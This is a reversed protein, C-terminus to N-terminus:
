LNAPSGFNSYGSTSPRNYDPTVYTETNNRQAASSAQKDKKFTSNFQDGIQGGFQNAKNAIFRRSEAGSSPALLIGAAVGAAVGILLSVISFGIGSAREYDYDEDGYAQNSQYADNNVFSKALTTLLKDTRKEEALSTTLLQLAQREGLMKAYTAVTGYNAIEYHEIKQAAGILGADRVDADGGASIMEQGEKILGQTAECTEGKPSQGLADFIQELRRIQEQTESEHREFARKLQPHQAAEAMQPLAKLIRSESDYIDRLQTVYLKKLTELKMTTQTKQNCIIEIRLVRSFSISLHAL